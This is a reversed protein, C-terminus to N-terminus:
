NKIVSSFMYYSYRPSLSDSMDESINMLGFFSSNNEFEM